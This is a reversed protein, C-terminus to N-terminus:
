IKELVTKFMPKDDQRHNYRFSYENIYGQLHKESVAHYVGDIGRKLVSWFGEITNTHANGSVYVKSAHQVWKHHYGQQNLNDYTTFEDTYIMSQPLIHQKMIPYITSHKVNSTAFAKLDGQRQAMGFVLTKNGAGRGRKGHAKGGIYTEDIEVEGSMPKTDERLLSRIAHFIRWATKYTVGLERQLQKASIGSRTSSILFIAYFWLKLPTVSKEFITGVMPYVHSGCRACAYCPRKGVKHHTTVMGCQKCFIGNPYLYNKLWQLCADDNLFDKNFDITTYKKM